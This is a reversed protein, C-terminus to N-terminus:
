SINGTFGPMTAVDFQLSGQDSPTSNIREDTLYGVALAEFAQAAAPDTAMAKLARMMNEIALRSRLPIPEFLSTIKNWRKRYLARLRRNKSSGVNIARYKPETEDPYWYGLQLTETYTDIEPQVLVAPTYNRLVFETRGAPIGTIGTEFYNVPPLDYDDYIPISGVDAISLDISDPFPPLVGGITNGVQSFNYNSPLHSSYPSTGPPYPAPWEKLGSAPDNDKWIRISWFPEDYDGETSQVPKYILQFYYYEPETPPQPLTDWVPIDTFTVVPPIMEFGPPYPPDIKDAGPVFPSFVGTAAVLRIFGSSTAKVIRDFEVFMPSTSLFQASPDSVCPCQYGRAGNRWVEVERGDPLREKGYIKISINEDQASDCIALVQVPIPRRNYEDQDYFIPLKNIIVTEGADDWTAGSSTNTEGTGNLHFEFWRNRPILPNGGINLSVVSEVFRPLVFYGTGQGDLVNVAASQDPTYLDVIGLGSDWQAKNRLVEIATTIKDFINKRGIYGFIECAVDYIDGVVISDRVTINTDTTTPVELAAAMADAEDRSTQEKKIFTVARALAADGKDYEDDAFYRVAKCAHIVAMKSHLNIIDNQSTIEFIERRFMIRVAASKQSLKIWRYNPITEEGQYQAILNDPSGGGSYLTCVGTTAERGVYTIQTFFKNGGVGGPNLSAVITDQVEAGTGDKGIATLTKGVDGPQTCQYSLVGPITIAKQIPTYGRDSWEFGLPDGDNSGNTNLTFEFLRNRFFTPENNINVRLVTKVERPLAVMNTNGTVFDLYGILPDFLGENSLLEVARSIAQFNIVEDCKGTVEQIQSYISSVLM